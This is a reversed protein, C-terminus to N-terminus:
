LYAGGHFLREVNGIRLLSGVRRPKERVSRHRPKQGGPQDRLRHEGNQRGDERVNSTAGTGRIGGDNQQENGGCLREGERHDAGDARPLLRHGFVLSRQPCPLFINSICTSFSSFFFFVRSGNSESTISPCSCSTKKLSTWMVRGRRSGSTGGSGSVAPSVCRNSDKLALHQITTAAEAQNVLIEIFIFVTSDKRNCKVRRRHASIFLHANQVIVM